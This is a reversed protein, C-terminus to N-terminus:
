LLQEVKWVPKGDLQAELGGTTARAFAYQWRPPRDGEAVAELLLLMEPDTGQVFAFVAGDRLEPHTKEAAKMDYRYLDRPHLRLEDGKSESYKWGQLTASFRRALEKMQRLRDGPTNTPVSADALGHFQVGAVAPSWVLEDGEHAVLGATRSLSVFDHCLQGLAFVSAAAAPRGDHIWLVLIANAQGGRTPNRWRIAVQPELTTQAIFGPRLRYREATTDILLQVRKDRESELAGPEDGASIRLALLGLALVILLTRLKYRPM